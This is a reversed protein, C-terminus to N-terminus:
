PPHARHVGLGYVLARQKFIRYGDFKHEFYCNHDFDSALNRPDLEAYKHFRPTRRCEQDYKIIWEEWNNTQDINNKQLFVVSNYSKVQGCGGENVDVRKTNFIPGAKVHVTTITISTHCKALISFFHQASFWTRLLM